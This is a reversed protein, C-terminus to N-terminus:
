EAVEWKAKLKAGCKACKLFHSFHYVGKEDIRYTGQKAEHECEAKKIAQPFALLAVFEDDDALPLGWAIEDDDSQKLGGIKELGRAWERFRANAQEASLKSVYEATAYLNPLKFDEATFLDPITLDKESKMAQEKYFKDIAKRAAQRWDEMSDNM